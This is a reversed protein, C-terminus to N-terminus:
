ELLRKRETNNGCFDNEMVEGNMEQSECLSQLKGPRSFSVITLKWLECLAQRRCIVM